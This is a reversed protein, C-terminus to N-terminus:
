IKNVVNIISGKEFEITKNCYLRIDDASHSALLLIKAGHHLDNFRKNAKKHFAADGTGISEDILLIDPAISTFIVFCLRSLMGASYTRAPLNLFNGLETFDAIEDIIDHIERKNLGLIYGRLYINEIGTAEMDMGAAPDILTGVTGEIRISGGTPKHLGSIARLLISKGAGNHGILGIRDGDSIELSINDLAKVSVADDADTAIVGGTVHSLIQKKLSLSNSGYIKFDISLNRISIHAM